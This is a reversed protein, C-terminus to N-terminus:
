RDREDVVRAAGRDVLERAKREGREVPREDRRAGIGPRRQLAHQLRERRGQHGHPAPQRTLQSPPSIVCATHRRRRDQLKSSTSDGEATRRKAAVSAASSARHAATLRPTVTVLDEVHHALRGRRLLRDLVRALFARLAEDPQHQHASAAEGRCHRRVRLPRNAFATPSRPGGASRVGPAQAPRSPNPTSDRNASVLVSRRTMWSTTTSRVGVCIVIACTKEHIPLPYTTKGQREHAPRDESDSPSARPRKRDTQARQRPPARESVM